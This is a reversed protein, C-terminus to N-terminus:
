KLLRKDIFCNFMNAIYSLIVRNTLLLCLIRSSQLIGTDLTEDINPSFLM